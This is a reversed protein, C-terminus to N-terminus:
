RPLYGHMGEPIPFVYYDGSVFAGPLEDGPDRQIRRLMPHGDPDDKYERLTMFWDAGDTWRSEDVYGNLRDGMAGRNVRLEMRSMYQLEYGFMVRNTGWDLWVRQVDHDRLDRILDLAETRYGVPWSVPHRERHLWVGGWHFFSFVVIFAAVATKRRALGCVLHATLGLAASTVLFAPVLFRPSTYDTPRPTLIHLAVLATLVSLFYAAGQRERPNGPSLFKRTLVYGALPYIGLQVWTRWTLVTESGSEAPFIVELMSSFDLLALARLRGPIDFTNLDVRSVWFEEKLFLYYLWAPSYGVLFAGGVFVPSLRQRRDEEGPRTIVGARRWANLALFSCLTFMALSIGIIHLYLRNRSNEWIYRGEKGFALWVIVLVSACMCSVSVIRSPSLPPRERKGPWDRLVDPIFSSFGAILVIVGAFCVAVLQYHWWALGALFGILCLRGPSVKRKSNWLDVVDLALWALVEGLFMMLTVHRLRSSYDMWYFPAICLFFLCWRAAAPGFFRACLRFHIVCLLVFYLMQTLRMPWMSFKWAEPGLLQLLAVPPIELSGMYHQRYFYIPVRTLNQLDYAMLGVITEDGDVPTYGAAYLACRVAVGLAIIALAPRDRLFLSNM